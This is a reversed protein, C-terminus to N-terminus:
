GNNTELAAYHANFIFDLVTENWGEIAKAECAEWSEYEHRAACYQLGIGQFEDGEFDVDFCDDCSISVAYDGHAPRVAKGCQPCPYPTM